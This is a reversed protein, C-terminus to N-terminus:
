NNLIKKLVLSNIPKDIFYSVGLEKCKQRENQLVSATTVIIKPKNKITKIYNIVEYGNKKPMRLDLLIIDYEKKSIKDIAKEGYECEDINKYGFDNIMECYFEMHIVDEVILINHYRNFSTTEPKNKDEFKIESINKIIMDFLQIKNIPKNLKGEFNTSGCFHDLSSLAILPLNPDEKKIKDALEVGSIDPM